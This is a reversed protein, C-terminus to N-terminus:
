EQVHKKSREKICSNNETNEEFTFDVDLRIGGSEEQSIFLHEAEAIVKLMDSTTDGISIWDPSLLSAAFDPNGKEYKTIYLKIGTRKAYNRIVRIIDSRRSWIQREKETQVQIRYAQKAIIIAVDDPITRLYERSAIIKEENKDM